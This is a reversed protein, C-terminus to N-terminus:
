CIRIGRLLNNEYLLISHYEKLDVYVEPITYNDLPKIITEKIGIQKFRNKYRYLTARSYHCYKAVEKFSGYKILDDYFQLMSAKPIKQINIRNYTDIQISIKEQDPLEKIQFEKIFSVMKKLCLYILSRSFKARNCPYSVTDSNFLDTDNDTELMFYTRQELIKSIYKYTQRDNKDIKAFPNAALYREKEEQDMIGIRESIRENRQLANSIRQFAKYDMKFFTCDKRFLNHKFLYNLYTNRITLEYRLVRDAFQQFKDTKFYESGKEKNIKVHEKLDNSKYESGKHYIKASYRKTVYMMSTSYERIVGEEDKAYKKKLRKQYELYKLADAKTKFVQNFCVDIRNVEVDRLSVVDVFEINFFHKLFSILLTPVRRLNHKLTSCEYFRYDRDVNHEVFMLVNSGFRYKPVSFNFEIYDATWNVFYSFAYHSSRNMQKGVQTKVIFEGTRNIKLIDIIEKSDDFGMNRLKSVEEKRIRATETTYGHGKQRQLDLRRILTEYKRLNHLRLIVTDIM